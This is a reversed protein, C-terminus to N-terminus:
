RYYGLKKEALSFGKSVVANMILYFVGAVIIPLLSVMSTQLKKAM